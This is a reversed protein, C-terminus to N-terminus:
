SCRANGFDRHSGVTAAAGEPLHQAASSSPWQQASGNRYNNRCDCPVECCLRVMAPGRACVNKWMCRPGRVESGGRPNRPSKHALAAEAVAAAAAMPRPVAM